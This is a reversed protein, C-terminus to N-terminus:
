DAEIMVSCMQMRDKRLKQVQTCLRKEISHEFLELVKDDEVCVVPCAVRLEKTEKSSKGVPVELLVSCSQTELSGTGSESSASSTKFSNFNAEEVQLM